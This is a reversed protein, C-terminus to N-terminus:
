IKKGGKTKEFDTVGYIEMMKSLAWEIEQQYGEKNLVYINPVNKPPKNKDTQISGVEKKILLANRDGTSTTLYNICQIITDKSMSLDKAMSEISRWFAEPKTEPNFIKESGDDNRPRCGIYSNIYLFSTILSEKSQKTKSLLISDIDRAYIKTFNETADFNKTIIKIPICDKYDVSYIDFITEIYNSENLFLLCKIIEFFLKPKHSLLKYGCSELIEGICLYSTDEYSRHRDIYIFVILFIRNLGFNKNINTQIFCNPIRTFYSVKNEYNYIENDIPIFDYFDFNKIEGFGSYSNNYGNEVTKYKKILYSELDIAEKYTCNDSYIEHKFNNWGYKVIDKYFKTNEVYGNGNNWRENVQKRTIGIYKKGNKINTHIYVKYTNKSM